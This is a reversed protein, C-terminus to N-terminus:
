PNTIYQCIGLVTDFLFERHNKCSYKYIRPSIEEGVVATIDYCLPCLVETIKKPPEYDKKPTTTM